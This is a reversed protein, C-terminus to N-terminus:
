DKLDNKKSEKELREIEALITELEGKSSARLTFTKDTTEFHRDIWTKLGDYSRISLAEKMAREVEFKGYRSTFIEHLDKDEIKDGYMSVVKLARDEKEGGRAPDKIEGNLHEAVEPLVRYKGDADKSIAKRIQALVYKVPDAEEGGVDIDLLALVADSQLMKRLVELREDGDRLRSALQKGAPRLIGVKGKARDYTDLAK